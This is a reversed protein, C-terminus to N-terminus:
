ALVKRIRSLARPSDIGVPEDTPLVGPEAATLSAAQASKEIRMM